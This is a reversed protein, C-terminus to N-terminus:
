NLRKQNNSIRRNAVDSSGSSGFFKRVLLVCFILTLIFQGVGFENMLRGYLSVVWAAAGWVLPAVATFIYNM